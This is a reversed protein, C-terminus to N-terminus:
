MRQVSAVSLARDIATLWDHGHRQCPELHNGEAWENWANVFLFPTDSQRTLKATVWAEFLDPRSGRFIIGRGTPRRASNDWSPCVGPFCPYGPAPQASDFAVFAEMDYHTDFAKWPQMSQWSKRMRNRLRRRPHRKLDPRTRQWLRFNRSFPQFELAADFGLADPARTDEDLYREVRILYPDVGESRCTRRFLDCWTPPCPIRDSNYIAFVPRGDIRIYRPDDFIPVMHRAHAITDEDSYTQALLLERDGGDWARTWNENAWCLMFPFDPQGSSLMDDLPRHLLRRGSFWYHYYCFGHLGAGRALRVQAERVEPVRLDYFGLDAPLHPQDHGRFRPRAQVVNRWETFGKGWFADNEPIPHFQPLFFAIVRPASVSPSSADFMIEEHGHM